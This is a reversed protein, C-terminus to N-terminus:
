QYYVFNPKCQGSGNSITSLGPSAPEEKIEPYGGENWGVFIPPIHELSCILQIETFCLVLPRLKLVASAIQNSSNKLMVIIINHTRM